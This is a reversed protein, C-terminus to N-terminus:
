KLFRMIPRFGMNFPKLGRREKLMYEAEMTTYINLRKIYDSINSYTYHLLPDNIRGAEGQLLVKEHVPQIYEARDKKFLRMQYDNQTGCFDFWRGFIYSRRKIFYGCYKDDKKELVAQIEKKLEPTIVEDADIGLAWDNKVKSLAFNKQQSYDIFENEYINSTYKRCIDLTSDSSGSDVIIVEDVWTLAQLCREINTAENFTVIFVSIKKHAM